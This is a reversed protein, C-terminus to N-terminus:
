AGRCRLRADARLVDRAPLDSRRAGAAVQLERPRPIAARHLEAGAPDSRAAILESLWEGNYRVQTKTRDLMRYAQEAYTQGNEAVQEHTLIPRAKNKDSPDGVLATYNGILFTVEHGLEQFQRLKRM